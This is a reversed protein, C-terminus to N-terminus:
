LIKSCLALLLFVGSQWSSVMLLASGELCGCRLFQVGSAFGSSEGSVLMSKPKVLVTKM